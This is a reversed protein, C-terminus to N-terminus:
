GIAQPIDLLYSETILLLEVTPTSVLPILHGTKPMSPLQSLDVTVPLNYDLHEQFMKIHHSQSLPNQAHPHKVLDPKVVEPPIHTLLNLVSEKLLSINSDMTWLVEKVDKTETLDLAIV